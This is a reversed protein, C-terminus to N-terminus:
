HGRQKVTGVVNPTRVMKHVATSLCQDKILETYNEPNVPSYEVESGGAYIVTLLNKSENYKVSSVHTLSM